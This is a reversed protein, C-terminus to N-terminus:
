AVVAPGPLEGDLMQLECFRRYLGDGRLLEAHTGQEVIRGADLLVVRHARRVTALRHAVVLTARGEFLRALALQVLHESEADLSSTAEDLVVVAPDKLFVRAIAIRQREGVSLRVGREGVLTALGQPLAQIFDWARAARAAAEVEADSADPRGYRINEAVSGGFVFIEQPVLGIARRLDAVRLRKVDHGDLCVRGSQPEHFRLLLAILTSKGGGSPGVLAVVEGPEVTLSVGEIAPRADAVPYTFRVDEFAVAGRPRALAIADPADQIAPVTELLKRVRETAGAAGSLEGWFSAISGLASAVMGTYLFFSTLKGPTLSGEIMLKGGYWLILTVASFTFFSVLAGFAGWV